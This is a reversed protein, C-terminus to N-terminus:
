TLSVLGGLFSETNVKWSQSPFKIWQQVQSAGGISTRSEMCSPGSNASRLLPRTRQLSGVIQPFRHHENKFLPQPCAWSRSTLLLLLLPCAHLTITFRMSVKMTLKLILSAAGSLEGSSGM